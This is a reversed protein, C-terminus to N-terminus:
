IETFVKESVEKGEKALRKKASVREAHTRKVAKVILYNVDNDTKVIDGMELFNSFKNAIEMQTKGTIRINGYTVEIM